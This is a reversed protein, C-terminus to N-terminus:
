QSESRTRDQSREAYWYGLISTATPLITLYITKAYDLMAAEVQMLMSVGMLAPGLGFTYVGAAYSLRRRVNSRKTERAERQRAAYQENTLAPSAHREQVDQVM